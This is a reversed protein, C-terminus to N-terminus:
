GDRERIPEKGTIENLRRFKGNRGLRPDLLESVYGKVTEIREKLDQPIEKRSVLNNYDDFIGFDDFRIIERTLKKYFKDGSYPSGRKLMPLGIMERLERSNKRAEIKVQEGMKGYDRKNGDRHTQELNKEPSWIEGPVPIYKEREWLAGQVLKEAPVSSRHERHSAAKKLDGPQYLDTKRGLEMERMRIDVRARFRTDDQYLGGYYGLAAQDNENLDQMAFERRKFRALFDVPDIRGAERSGSQEGEGSM